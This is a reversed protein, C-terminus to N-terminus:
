NGFDKLLKNAWSIYYDHDINSLETKRLQNVENVINYQQQPVVTNVKFYGKKSEKTSTLGTVGSKTAIIRNVKQYLKGSEDRMTHKGTVKALQVFEWKNQNDNIYQEISTNYLLHNTVADSVVKPFVQTNKYDFNKLNGRRKVNGDETELVAYNTTALAVRKYKDEELDLNFLRKVEDIVPKSDFQGICYIGDTNVSIVKAGQKTALEVMKLLVAQGILRLSLMKNPTYLASFKADMRGSVTNLVLKLAKERKPNLKNHKLTLREERIANYKQTATGLANSNIILSPYMSAIDLETVDNYIGKICGHAGGKSITIHIGHKNITYGKFKNPEIKSGNERTQLEIQGNRNYYRQRKNGKTDDVYQKDLMQLLEEVNDVDFLSSLDHGNYNLTPKDIDKPKHTYNDTLIKDIMSGQSKGVDRDNLNFSEVLSESVEFHSEYVHMFLKATARVDYMNYKVVKLLEDETLTDKFLLGEDEVIDLQMYSEMQKLSIREGVVDKVDYEIHKDNMKPLDFLREKSITNNVIDDSLQKISDNDYGHKVLSLIYKDYHKNNFGIFIGDNIISHFTNYDLVTYEDDYVPKIRHFYMYMQNTHMDLLAITVGDNIVEIDYTYYDKNLM